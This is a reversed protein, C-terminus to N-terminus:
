ETGERLVAIMGEQVFVAVADLGNQELGTEILRSSSM